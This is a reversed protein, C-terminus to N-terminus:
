CYPVVHVDNEWSSNIGYDIWGDARTITGSNKQFSYM